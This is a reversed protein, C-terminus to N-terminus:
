QKLPLLSLILHLAKSLVLVNKKPRESFSKREKVKDEREARGELLLKVQLTALPQASQLM